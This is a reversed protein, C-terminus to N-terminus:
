LNISGILHRYTDQVSFQQVYAVNERCQDASPLSEFHFLVIRAHM